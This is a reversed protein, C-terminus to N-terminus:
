YFIFDLLCEIVYNMKKELIIYMLLVILLLEFPAIMHIIYPIYM